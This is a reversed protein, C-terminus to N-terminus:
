AHYLERAWGGGEEGGGEGGRPLFWRRSSINSFGARSWGDVVFTIYRHTDWGWGGHAPVNDPCRTHQCLQGSNWERTGSLKDRSPMNIKRKIGEDVSYGATRQKQLTGASKWSRHIVGPAACDQRHVFIEAKDPLKARRHIKKKKRKEREREKKRGGGESMALGRLNKFNQGRQSVFHKWLSAFLASLTLSPRLHVQNSSKRLEAIQEPISYENNQCCTFETIKFVIPRVRNLTSCPVFSLSIEVMLAVSCNNEVSIYNDRPKRFYILFFFLLFYLIHFYYSIYIFFYM